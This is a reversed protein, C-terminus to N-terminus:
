GVPMETVTAGYRAYTFRLQFDNAGDEETEIQPAGSVPQQGPADELTVTITWTGVGQRAQFRELAAQRAEQPDTANVTAADPVPALPVELVVTGNRSANKQTSGQPPTLDMRFRDPRGVDDQWVLRVEVRTLNPEGVEIEYTTSEGEALTDSRTEPPGNDVSWSVPFAVIPDPTDGAEALLVGVLAAVLLVGGVISVVLRRQDM